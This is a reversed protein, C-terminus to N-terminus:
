LHCWESVAAVAGFNMSGGIYSACLCCVVRWGEAGLAKGVLAYGVLAGVVMGVAGVFFGAMTPGGDRVLSRIVRLWAAM